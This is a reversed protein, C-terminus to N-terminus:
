TIDLLTLVSTWGCMATVLKPIGGSEQKQKAKLFAKSSNSLVADAMISDSLNSDFYNPYHSFDTSIIFLNEETLFPKLALALQSCTKPSEGGIIIPVITFPNKLWYQLFPLQVEISHERIHPQIDNTIFKYQKDLWGALTDVVVRGLPTIFDGSSYVSAGDFLITHSSGIIFVHKFVADRNIQRFGAAAVNGSFIYGAHPVIIALPSQKLRSPARNFYDTLSKLLEGKGAPYFAGAVAPQRDTKAPDAFNTRAQSTWVLQVIGFVLIIRYLYTKM